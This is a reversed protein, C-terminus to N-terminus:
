YTADWFDVEKVIQIPLGNKRNEIAQEIKRGYCSFVWCPNNKDGVVLYDTERVLTDHYKGGLSAIKKAIDKRQGKSSTGTFCFLKGEFAVDSNM